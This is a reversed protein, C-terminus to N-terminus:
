EDRSNMGRASAPAPVPGRRMPTAALVAVGVVAWGATRLARISEAATAGTTLIDDVLVAAAGPRAPRRVARMAGALNAAREAATLGASDAVRSRVRLAPCAYVSPVRLARALVRVHDAGRQRVAAARSPAPIVALRGPPAAAIDEAAASVVGAVAGALLAALPRALEASGRRKFELVASRLPGDYWGAACVPETLAARTGLVDLVGEGGIEARCAPCLVHGREGCGACSRPLALDVLDAWVGM